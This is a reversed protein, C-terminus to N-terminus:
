VTYYAPQSADFVAAKADEITEYEQAWREGDQTVIWKGDIKTAEFEGEIYLENTIKIM